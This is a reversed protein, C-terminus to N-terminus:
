PLLREYYWHMRTTHGASAAAQSAVALLPLESWDKLVVPSDADLLARAEDLRGAEALTWVRLSQAFLPAAASLSDLQETVADWREATTNLMARIVDTLADTGFLGLQRQEALSKEYAAEAEALRGDALLRL